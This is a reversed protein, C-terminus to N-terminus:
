FMLGLLPQRQENSSIFTSMIQNPDIKDLKEKYIHALLCHNLRSQTMSSRLTNKVRNLASFARESTATTIPITLYLRILKDFEQFMQKGIGCVASIKTILKIKMQNINIVIRFLDSIMFAESKLREIYIDDHCSDM